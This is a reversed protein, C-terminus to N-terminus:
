KCLLPYKGFNYGEEFLAIINEPPVDNQINHCSGFLYGGGKGLACIMKRSEERVREPSGKPLVEQQDVGGWFSLVDGYKKKLIYPDMNAASIQVPNLVDVGIEVLDDLHDWASGCTHFAIKAKTKRKLAKVLEAERPKVLKRWSKPNILSGRQNGYDSFFLFCDLYEGVTDLFRDNLGILVETVKDLLKCFYAPNEITDMFLPGMGRLYQTFEFPGPVVTLVAYGADSIKKAQEKLGIDRGKAKPDPWDYKEIDNIGLKEFPHTEQDYYYSTPPKTWRIGFEDVFSNGDRWQPDYDAAEKPYVYRTDVHFRQLVEEDLQVTGTIWGLWRRESEIGLKKKLNDYAIYCIGSLWGGTDIPIRDPEQHNLARQVREKSTMTM